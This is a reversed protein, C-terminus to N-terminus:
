EAEDPTPCILIPKTERRSLSDTCSAPRSM